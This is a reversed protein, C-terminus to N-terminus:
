PTQLTMVPDFGHVLGLLVHHEAAGITMATIGGPVQLHILRVDKWSVRLKPLGRGIGVLEARSVRGVGIGPEIVLRRLVDFEDIGSIEPRHWPSITRLTSWLMIFWPAM